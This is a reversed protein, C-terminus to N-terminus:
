RRSRRPEAAARQADGLATRLKGQGRYAAARHKPEAFVSEAVDGFELAEGAAHLLNQAELPTLEVHVRITM